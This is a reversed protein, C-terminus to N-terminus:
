VGGGVYPRAVNEYVGCMYSCLWMNMRWAVYESALYEYVGGCVYPHTVLAFEEWQIKGDHNRDLHQFKTYL